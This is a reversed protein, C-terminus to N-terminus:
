EFNVANVTCGTTTAVFEISVPARNAKAALLLAYLARAPESTVNGLSMVSLYCATSSPGANKVAVYGLGNKDMRVVSVLKSQEVLPATQAHVLSKVMVAAISVTAALVLGVLVRNKM